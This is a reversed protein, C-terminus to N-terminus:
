RHRYVEWGLYKGLAEELVDASRSRNLAVHHEFGNQTIYSLLSRLQPIHCLAVGGKTDVPDPLFDGEGVYAKIRGNRDDTTIKAFTMDGSAIQAKCAGFCKEQGITTGLVDLCSIEFETGFFSKPFNSCHLNICIDKENNYNNNWDMYGSPSGSALQLALMTLAGTVDMECASPKGEEGMMSMALCTACGYHNQISDWCQIASADCENEDVWKQLTLCLKAQKMIIEEGIEAPIHGYAKIETAKNIVEQTVKMDLARFIIDSLDVCSVSIGYAQLLRESFRVTNFSNPRAGIAGLRAHSLGKVVNCVKSFYSIDWTFEDSDIDCVHSTTDTFKIGRQYLNNCVSIKGCFADRRNEIQLRDMRDSCAQVMVPVKLGAFDIADAVGLEEGFNPLIVLIGDIENNHKRFLEACKKSDELTRVSGFETEKDSSIVYGYGLSDLKKLLREREELVLHSPFFARHTIIIGFVTKKM